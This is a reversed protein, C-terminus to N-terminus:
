RKLEIVLLSCGETFLSGGGTSLAHTWFTVSGTTTAVWESFFTANPFSYSLETTFGTICGYTADLPNYSKWVVNRTNIGTGVANFTNSKILYAGGGSSYGIDLNAASAYTTAKGGVYSGIIVYRQGSKVSVTYSAESSASPTFYTNSVANTVLNDTNVGDSGTGIKSGPITAIHSASVTGSVILDGNIKTNADIILNYLAGTGDAKKVGTLRLGGVSGDINGQVAWQASLTGNIDATTSTLTTISSTHGNVTAELTQRSSAEASVADARAQTEQKVLARSEAQGVKVSAELASVKSALSGVSTSRTRAEDKILALNTSDGSDVKAELTTLKSATSSEADALATQLNQIQGQTNTDSAEFQASLTEITEVLAQDATARVNVENEYQAQSTESVDLIKDHHKRLAGELKSFQQENYVYQSDPDKPPSPSKIYTDLTDAM